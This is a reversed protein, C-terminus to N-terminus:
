KLDAGKLKTFVVNFHEIHEDKSSSYVIIDNLYHLTFPLTSVLLHDQFFHSPGRM